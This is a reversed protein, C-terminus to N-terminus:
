CVLGTGDDQGMTWSMWCSRNRASRKLLVVVGRSLENVRKDLKKSDRQWFMALWDGDGRIVTLIIGGAM